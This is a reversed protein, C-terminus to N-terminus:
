LFFLPFNTEAFMALCKETFKAFCTETDTNVFLNQLDYCSLNRYISSLLNQLNVM